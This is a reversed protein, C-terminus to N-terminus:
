MIKCKALPGNHLSEDCSKVNKPITISSIATSEIMEYGMYTLSEPLILTELATCGRFVEDEISTVNESLNVNKLSTCEGFAWGEISAKYEVTSNYSM